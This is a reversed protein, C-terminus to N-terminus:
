KNVNINGLVLRIRYLETVFSTIFILCPLYIFWVMSCAGYHLYFIQLTKLRERKVAESRTETTDTLLAYNQGNKRANYDGTDDGDDPESDIENIQMDPNDQFNNNVLDSSINNAVSELNNFTDKLEFLFWAMWLFRVSLEVYGATTEYPNTNFVPDIQEKKLKKISEFFITLCM